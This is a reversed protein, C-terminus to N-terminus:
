LLEPTHVLLAARYVDTTSLSRVEDKANVSAGLRVLERVAATHGGLAAKELACM